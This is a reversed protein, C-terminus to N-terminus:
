DHLHVISKKSIVSFTYLTNKRVIEVPCDLIKYVSNAFKNFSYGRDALLNQMNNLNDHYLYFM